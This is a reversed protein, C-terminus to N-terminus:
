ETSINQSCLRNYEDIIEDLHRMKYIRDQIKASVQPCDSLYDILKKRSTVLFIDGNGKQLINYVHLNNNMFTGKFHFFYLNLYGEKKIQLFVRLGSLWPPSQLPLNNNLSIMRIWKDNRIFNVERADKPSLDVFKRDKIYKVRWQMLTNDPESDVKFNITDGENSIYYGPRIVQAM